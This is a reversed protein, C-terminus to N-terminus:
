RVRFGIALIMDLAYFISKYQKGDATHYILLNQEVDNNM